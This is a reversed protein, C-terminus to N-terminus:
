HAERSDVFLMSVVHCTLGGALLPLALPSDRVMALADDAMGLMLAAMLAVALIALWRGLMPVERSREQLIGERVQRHPLSGVKERADVV